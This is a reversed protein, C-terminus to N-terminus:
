GAAVQKSSESSDKKVQNKSFEKQFQFNGLSGLYMLVKSIDKKYVILEMLNMAVTRAM